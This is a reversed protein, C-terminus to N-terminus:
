ATRDAFLARLCSFIEPFEFDPGNYMRCHYASAIYCLAKVYQKDEDCPEFLDLPICENDYLVLAKMLSQADPSINALTMTWTKRMSSVTSVADSPQQFVLRKDFDSYHRLFTQYSSATSGTYAGISNLVLPLHGLRAAIVAAAHNEGVAADNTYHNLRFLFKVSEQETFLPVELPVRGFKRAVVPNRTTVIVDGHAGVPWFRKLTDAEEVSDFLL